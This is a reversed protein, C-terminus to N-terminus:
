NKQIKKRIKIDLRSKRTTKDKRCKIKQNKEVQKKPANYPEPSDRLSVRLFGDIGKSSHVKRPQDVCCEDGPISNLAAMGFLM